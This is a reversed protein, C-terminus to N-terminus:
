RKVIGKLAEVSLVDNQRRHVMRHCNACLPVLDTEPNVETAKDLESLPKIHHIEIFDRGREGYVAEFNFDCGFCNLGHIEIALMRNKYDREYRKEYYFKSNGEIGKGEEAREAELDLRINEDRKIKNSWLKALENVDKEEVLYNTNQRLRLIMLDSLEVNAELESRYIGNDVLVDHVKLEVGLYNDEVMDVLWYSNANVNSKLYPKPMSIVETRAVIGGSGRNNGDSRWIYVIDGVEIRDAYHNQRISWIISENELLYDNVNFSKPNGQFIWTNM